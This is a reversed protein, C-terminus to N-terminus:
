CYEFRKSIIAQIYYVKGRKLSESINKKILNIIDCFKEEILRSTKSENKSHVVREKSYELYNNLDKQKNNDLNSIAVLLADTDKSLKM